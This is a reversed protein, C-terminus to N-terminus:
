FAIEEGKFVMVKAGYHRAIKESTMACRKSRTMFVSHQVMSGEGVLGVLRKINAWFRPNPKSMFDYMVLWTGEEEDEKEPIEEYFEKALSKRGL